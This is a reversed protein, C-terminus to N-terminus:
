GPAPEESGRVVDLHELARQQAAAHVPAGRRRARDGDPVFGGAPDGDRRRRARGPAEPQRAGIARPRADDPRLSSELVRSFHKRLLGYLEPLPEATRYKVGTDRAFFTKSGDLYEKVDNGVGRYWHDRVGDRADMPLLTLFNAEGEMRLFDMYMRTTVQHGVSGYVDYGAVLLYHIRELLSYSVIWATQPTEGVLGRVVTASDFHRFITLTANDNKGDGDWLMSLNPLRKGGLERNLM